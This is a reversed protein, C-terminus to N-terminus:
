KGHKQDYRNRFFVYMCNVPYEKNWLFVCHTHSTQFKPSDGKWKTSLPWSSQERDRAASDMQRGETVRDEQGVNVRGRQQPCARHIHGQMPRQLWCGSKLMLGSEKRFPTSLRCEWLLTYSVGHTWIRGLVQPWLGLPAPQCSGTGGLREGM